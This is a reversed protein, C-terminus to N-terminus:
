QPGTPGTSGTTATFYVSGLTANVFEQTARASAARSAEVRARYQLDEVTRALTSSPRAPRNRLSSPTEEDMMKMYELERLEAQKTIKEEWQSWTFLKNDDVCLLAMANEDAEERAGATIYKQFLSADDGLIEKLLGEVGLDYYSCLLQSPDTYGTHQWMKTLANIWIMIEDRDLTGKMARYEISGFKVLACVNQSSYRQEQSFWSNRSLRHPESIMTTYFNTDFRRLTHYSDKLQLAFTNQERKTGCHKIIVPELLWYLFLRTMLETASLDLANLHVHWSTTASDKIPESVNNDNLTTLLSSIARDVGVFPIPSRTTYEKPIRSRLSPDSATKWTGTDIEPLKTNSEVELEAGFMCGKKCSKGLLTGLTAKSTM